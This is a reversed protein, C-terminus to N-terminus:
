RRARSKVKRDIATGVVKVVRRRSTDFARMAVPTAVIDSSGYELVVPYPFGRENLVSTGIEVRVRKADADLPQVEISELYRGTKVLGESLINDRWAGQVIQGAELLIEEISHGSTADDLGALAADLERLDLPQTM